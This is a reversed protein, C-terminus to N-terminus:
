AAVKLTAYFADTGYDDFSKRLIKESSVSKMAKVLQLGEVHFELADRMRDITRDITKDTAACGEIAPSFASYGTRTRLIVVPILIFRKKV